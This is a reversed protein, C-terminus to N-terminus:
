PNETLKRVSQAGHLHFIRGAFTPPVGHEHLFLILHKIERQEGWSEQIDKLKKPSVGKVELLREPETDLIDLVEVGFREVLRQATKEGIGKIASSALFKIVGQETAPRAHEFREVQFQRGFKPHECWQGELTLSEGPAVSGLVGVISVLGPQDEARVRAVTWGNQPNSYVVSHVEATLRATM